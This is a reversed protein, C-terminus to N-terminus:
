GLTIRLQDLLAAVEHAQAETRDPSEQRLIGHIRAAVKTPGTSETFMPLFEIALGSTRMNVVRTAAPNLSNSATCTM